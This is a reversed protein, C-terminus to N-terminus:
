NLCIFLFLPHPHLINSMDCCVSNMKIFWKKAEPGSIRDSMGFRKSEKEKRGKKKKKKKKTVRCYISNGPWPDSRLGTTVQAVAPNRLGSHQALSQVQTRTSCLHLQDRQAETPIGMKIRKRKKKKKEKKHGEWALPSIQPVAARDAWLWLLMLDSGCRHVVGCTLAVGSGWGLSHPWPEFM